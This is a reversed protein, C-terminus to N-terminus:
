PMMAVTAMTHIVAAHRGPPLFVATPGALQVPLEVGDIEIRRPARDLVAIARADSQYSIEIADSGLTKAGKLEGNLRVLRAGYRPSGAEVSHTGAPLWVTQDDAAPWNRGDV